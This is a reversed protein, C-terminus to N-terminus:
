IRFYAGRQPWLVMKSSSALAELLRLYLFICRGSALAGNEPSLSRGHGQFIYRVSAFVCNKIFIFVAGRYFQLNWGLARGAQALLVSLLIGLYARKSMNLFICGASAPAGNRSQLGLLAESAHEAFGIIKCSFHLNGTNLAYQRCRLLLPKTCRTSAPLGFRLLLLFGPTQRSM